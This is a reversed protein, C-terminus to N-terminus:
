EPREGDPFAGLYTLVDLGTFSDRTDGDFARQEAIEKSPYTEDGKFREGKAIPNGDQDEGDDPAIWWNRWVKAPKVREPKVQEEPLLANM